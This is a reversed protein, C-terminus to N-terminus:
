EQGCVGQGERGGGREGVRGKVGLGRDEGGERERVKLRVTAESEDDLDEPAVEEERGSFFGVLERGEGGEGVGGEGEGEGEGGKRGKKEQEGSPVANSLKQSPRKKSGGTKAALWKM